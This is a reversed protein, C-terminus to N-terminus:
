GPFLADSCSESGFAGCGTFNVAVETGSGAVLVSKTSASMRPAKNKRLLGRPPV